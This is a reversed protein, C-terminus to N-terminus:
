RDRGLAARRLTLLAKKETRSAQAQGMGLMQAAERQTLGEFFRLEMLRRSDPDLARLLERALVRDTATKEVDDPAPPLGACELPAPPELAALLCRLEDAPFGATCAAQEPSAGENVLRAYEFAAAKVRRGARVRGNERLAHRIEGVIFAFAYTSFAAPGGARYSQAARVLGVAGTQVLDEMAVGRGAFRRAAARVLPLYERAREDSLADPM